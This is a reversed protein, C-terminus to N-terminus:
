ILKKTIMLVTFIGLMINNINNPKCFLRLVCLKRLFFNMKKENNKLNRGRKTQASANKKPEQLPEDEMRIDNMFLDYINENEFSQEM